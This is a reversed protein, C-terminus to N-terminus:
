RFLLATGNGANVVVKGSVGSDTLVSIAADHPGYTGSKYVKNTVALAKVTLTCGNLELYGNANLTLSAIAANTLLGLRVNNTTVWVTQAINESSNTFAPLSTFSSNTATTGNDVIVTGAGAAM